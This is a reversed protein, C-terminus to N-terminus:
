TLDAIILLNLWVIRYPIQIIRVIVVCTDRVILLLLESNIIEIHSNTQLLSFIIIVSYM